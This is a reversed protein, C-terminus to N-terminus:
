QDDGDNFAWTRVVKLGMESAESLVECVYPRLSAEAAYVMLYYTNSGTYYYPLGNLVFHTGEVEVYGMTEVAAVSTPAIIASLVTSFLTSTVLARTFTNHM